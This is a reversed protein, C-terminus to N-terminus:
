QAVSDSYVCLLFHPLWFCLQLWLSLILQGYVHVTSSQEKYLGVWRSMLDPFLPDLRLTVMLTLCYYHIANKVSIADGLLQLHM